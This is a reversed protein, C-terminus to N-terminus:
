LRIVEKDPNSLEILEEETTTLVTQYENILKM